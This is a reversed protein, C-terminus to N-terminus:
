GEKKFVSLLAFYMFANQSKITLGEEVIMNNLDKKSFYKVGKEGFVKNLIITWLKRLYNDTIPDLLIFIGDSNLAGVIKKVISRHDIYHHFSNMCIIADFKQGQFDMAEIDNHFYEIKKDNNKLEALKLMESSIDVGVLAGQFYKSILNLAGGTGCGIDLIDSKKNLNNKLIKFIHKNARAFYLSWIGEEYTEAWEDFQGITSQHREKM